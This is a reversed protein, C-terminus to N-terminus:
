AGQAAPRALTGRRALAIAAGGAGVAAAALFATRWGSAAVVAGAAGNGLAVGAILATLPWVYAETLAGRPAVDGVLQNAAILLPAIAVGALLAVPFMLALSSPLALPLTVLPVLATMAVFLRATRRGLAHAGYALGGLASGLSWVALLPGALARDGAQEGFAPFAVEAAGLCFGIPVMALVLTRVGPARLAGLRGGTDGAATRGPHHSRVPDTTAFALTGGVVLLASAVLAYQPVGLAAFLAVALPGLIFLLEVTVSDLAYAAAVLPRRRGLLSPWLARMIGATPPFSGGCLIATAALTAPHAGLAALLVLAALAGAHVAALPVLVRRAGARDVLRANLPGAVAIGVASCAAVAGAAAYSWGADRVVLVIALSELGIPARAVLASGFLRRALPTRLVAGYRGLGGM